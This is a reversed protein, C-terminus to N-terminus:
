PVINITMAYTQTDVNSIKDAYSKGDPPQNLAHDPVQDVEAELINGDLNRDEAVGIIDPPLLQENSTQPSVIRRMFKKTSNMMNIPKSHFSPTTAIISHHHSIPGPNIIPPIIDPRLALSALLHPSHP